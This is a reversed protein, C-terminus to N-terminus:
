WAGSEMVEWGCRLTEVDVEAEVGEAGAGDFKGDVDVHVLVNVDERGEGQGRQVSWELMARQGAVWYGRPAEAHAPLRAACVLPLLHLLLSAFAFASALHIHIHM